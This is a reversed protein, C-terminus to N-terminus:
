GEMVVPFIDHYRVAFTGSGFHVKLGDRYRSVSVAGAEADTREADALLSRLLAVLTLKACPIPFVASCSVTKETLTCANEGSSMLTVTM